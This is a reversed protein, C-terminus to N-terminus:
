RVHLQDVVGLERDEKGLRKLFLEMVAGQWINFACIWWFDLYTWSPMCSQSRIYLGPALKDGFLVVLVMGKQLYEETWHM